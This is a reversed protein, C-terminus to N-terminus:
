NQKLHGCMQKSKWKVIKTKRDTKNSSKKSSISLVYFSIHSLSLLRYISPYIALYISTNKGISSTETSLFRLKYFNRNSFMQWKQHKVLMDKSFVLEPSLMHWFLFGQLGWETHKHTLMTLFGQLIYYRYINIYTKLTLM